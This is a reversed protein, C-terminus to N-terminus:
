AAEVKEDDRETEMALSRSSDVHRDATIVVELTDTARSPQSPSIGSELTSPSETGASPSNGKEVADKRLRDEDNRTLEKHKIM